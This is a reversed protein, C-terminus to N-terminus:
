FTSRSTPPKSFSFVRARFSNSTVTFARSSPPACNVHFFISPRRSQAVSAPGSGGRLQGTLTLAEELSGIRQQAQLPSAGATLAIALVLSTRM